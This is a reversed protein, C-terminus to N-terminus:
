RGERRSRAGATILLCAILVNHSYARM